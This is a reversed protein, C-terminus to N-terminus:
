FFTTSSAGRRPAIISAHCCALGELAVVSAGGPVQALPDDAIGERRLCPVRPLPLM